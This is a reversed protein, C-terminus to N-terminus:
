KLGSHLASEVADCFLDIEERQTWVSPSVRIGKVDPHDIPTVNIQKKEWLHEVLKAAELGDVAFTAVGYGMGPKLSSLLKVRDLKGLRNAWRDRLFRLREAKREVGLGEHFTIAEAIALANAAPHTGIEEFKRIDATQKEDAAMLPWLGPILAKRVYLMGCGVPAFLWKHLSTAYYDCDLDARKFPFHAFGHAGDVIVPIKRARGLAAIEKVPLILGTLNIVHCMLILKTKPTINEEYGAIIKAPDDCPVPVRFTKLVIGERRVRQKFTTIMRGYDQDTCLVEDGAKLDFGFQCIQLGESANRTIAIEEPDAGFVNALRARVTERQPELVRWMFVSPGANSLDLHRKFADHVVAPSPSVGGSNLNIISRDVTFARQVQFWFHENDKTEQPTGRHGAIAALADPIAGLNLAVAASGGLF